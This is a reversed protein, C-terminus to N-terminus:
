KKQLVNPQVVYIFGHHIDVKGLPCQKLFKRVFVCDKFFGFMIIHVSVLKVPM